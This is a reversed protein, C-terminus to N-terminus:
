LANCLLLCLNQGSSHIKSKKMLTLSCLHFKWLNLKGERLMGFGRAIQCTILSPLFRVDLTCPLHNELIRRGTLGNSHATRKPPQIPAFLVRSPLCFPLFSLKYSKKRKTFIIHFLSKIYLENASIQQFVASTNFISSNLQCFIAKFFTVRKFVSFRNLSNIGSTYPLQLLTLKMKSHITQSHHLRGQAEYM